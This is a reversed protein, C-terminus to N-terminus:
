ELGIRTSGTLRQAISGADDAADRPRGRIRNWVDACGQRQDERRRQLAEDLRPLALGGLFNRWDVGDLSDGAGQALQRLKGEDHRYEDHFSTHVRSGRKGM